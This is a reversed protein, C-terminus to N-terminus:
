SHGRGSPLGRPPVSAAHRREGAAAVAAGELVCAFPEATVVVEVAGGAEESPEAGVALVDPGFTLAQALFGSLRAVVLFALHGEVLERVVGLFFAVAVSGAGLLRGRM